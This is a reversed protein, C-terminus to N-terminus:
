ASGTALEGGFRPVKSRWPWSRMRRSIGYCLLLGLVPYFTNILVRSSGYVLTAVAFCILILGLLVAWRAFPRTPQWAWVATGALSFIFIVFFDVLASAPRITSQQFLTNMADAHLEYGYREHRTLGRRVGFKESPVEVGVVVIKGTLDAARLNPSDLVAEYPLRRGPERMIRDPTFDIIRNAAVDGAGLVGCFQQDHALTELESIGVRQPPDAAAKVLISMTAKDVGLINWGRYEALAALSLSPLPEQNPQDVKAVALPVIEASEQTEGVCLLGWGTVSNALSPAIAPRRDSVEAVGVIVSTGRQKATLIAQAFEDDFEKPKPFFMDFVIVRAGAQSLKEVLKAHEGRWNAGLLPRGLRNATQDTMPVLAIRDSFTKPFFRDVLWVTYTQMKLGRPLWDLVRLRSLSFVFATLFVLSGIGLALRWRVSNLASQERQIAAAVEETKEPTNTLIRLNEKQTRAVAELTHDQSSTYPLDRLGGARLNFLADTARSFLVPTGIVRDDPFDNSLCNRAHTIAIEVRGKDSSKFLKGYFERAFCVAQDDDIEYQMAIVAPVGCQVLQSAMGLLPETSSVQAGKCSNLVVLKMTPHNTFLAGIREHNHSKSGGAGDDLVLLPLDNLFEGHGIFHLVHFDEDRLADRIADYTVNENLIRATVQKEMGSIADSLNKIETRAELGSGQPAAVLMRLPLQAEEGSIVQPLEIYRVIPTATSVALFNRSSDYYLLEWPLAALKPPDIRLRIRIGRKPKSLFLGRCREFLDGIKLYKARFLASYLATGFEILFHKDTDQRDVRSRMERIPSSDPDISSLDAWEGQGKSWARIPYGGRAPDHHQLLIDLDHYKM